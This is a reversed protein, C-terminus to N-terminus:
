YYHSSATVKLGGVLTDKFEINPLREISILRKEDPSGYKYYYHDFKDGEVVVKTINERLFQEDSPDFGAKIIADRITNDTKDVLARVMANKHAQMFSPEELRGFTTEYNM